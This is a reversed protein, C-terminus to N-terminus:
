RTSTSTNNLTNNAIIWYPPAVNYAVKCNKRAIPHPQTVNPALYRAVWWWLIINLYTRTTDIISCTSYVSCLM